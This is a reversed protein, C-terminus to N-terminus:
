LAKLREILNGAEKIFRNVIKFYVSRSIGFYDHVSNNRADLAQTWFEPDEIWGFHIAESIAPRPGYAERGQYEVAVKIMKWCNMFAIEFRKIVADEYAGIHDHDVDTEDLMKSAVELKKLSEECAAISDKIKDLTM